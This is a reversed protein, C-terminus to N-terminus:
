KIEDLIYGQGRRTQVLDGYGLEGLKQRLRNVNVTLTNDDVFRNDDWLYDTLEARQVIRGQHKALYMLIALENKSLRTEKEGARLVSKAPIIVLDGIQVVDSQTGQARKLVAEIRLLLVQPSYPKRVFDDAGFSMSMVEDVESDRSTLMIVPVQTKERVRKLVQGGNLGPLNIDLLVLDAGSEFIAGATDDFSKVAEADYGNELLLSMLDAALRAEDEVVLIKTM